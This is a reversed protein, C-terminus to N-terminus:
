ITGYVQTSGRSLPTLTIPRGANQRTDIFSTFVDSIDDSGSYTLEQLEPLLELPHEGDDLELCRSVEKVLHDHVNLTKVYRFLQLLERWETPNVEPGDHVFSFAKHELSLHEVTSLKQSLLHFIRAVSSLQMDRAQGLYFVIISLADVEAEQRLYLRVIVRFFSFEFTASDFKLNETANMFQLLHPVSLSLENFLRINLKKLRPATIQHVILEMYTGSGEFQFWRLSPLTIRITIPTDLLQREVHDPIPFLTTTILLTELRPMSSLCQLLINPQFYASPKQMHLHLTVMGVATTLLRSEIPPVVGMLLLHRLRPAELFKPLVSALTGYEGRYSKLILYELVPYEEDIAMILKPMIPVPIRLRIRRVRNRHRLALIIREEEEASIFRDEDDYDIVLPLSPSHALM